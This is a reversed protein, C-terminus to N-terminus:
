APNSRRADRNYLSRTQDPHSGGMSNDFTSQNCRKGDSASSAGLSRVGSCPPATAISSGAPTVTNAGSWGQLKKMRTQSPCTRTYWSSASPLSITSYRIPGPPM